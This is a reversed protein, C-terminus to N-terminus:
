KTGLRVFFVRDTFITALKVTDGPRPAHYFTGNGAYIGDHSLDDLVVIDGPMADEPKVLIGLKSQAIVSHPLLIGFQAFVFRVYGSCDFGNPNAGGFVYPTGVYKAAVALIQSAKLKSYPPNKAFDEASPGAYSLYQSAAIERALLAATTTTYNSREYLGASKVQAVTLGQYNAQSSFSAANTTTFGALAAQEPSFAYAPLAMTTFIGAAISMTVSNRVARRKFLKVPAQAAVVFRGTAAQEQSQAAIVQEVHRTRSALRNAKRSARKREAERISRRSRLEMTEFVNVEVDARHRGNSQKAL